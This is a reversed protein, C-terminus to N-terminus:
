NKRREKKGEEEKEEQQQQQLIELRQNTTRIANWISSCNDDVVSNGDSDKGDENRINSSELEWESQELCHELQFIGQKTRQLSTM